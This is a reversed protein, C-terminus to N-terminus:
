TRLFVIQLKFFIQIFKWHKLESKQNTEICTAYMASVKVFYSKELSKDTHTRSFLM